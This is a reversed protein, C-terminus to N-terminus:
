AILGRDLAERTLQYRASIQLKEQIASRHAEITRVSLHMLGSIESNTHGLGLFRLVSTERETLDQHTNQASQLLIDMMSPCFYSEHDAARIAAKVLREMGEHKSTYSQIGAQLAANLVASDEATALLVIGCDPALAAIQSVTEGLNEAGAIGPAELVLADPGRRALELMGELDSCVGALQFGSRQMFMKGMLEASLQSADAVVVRAVQTRCGQM